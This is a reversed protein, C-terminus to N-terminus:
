AEPLELWLRLARDLQAIQPRSLHGIRKGIRSRKVAAIKDVMVESPKRLGTSASEGFAIRFESFGTLESSIPCIVVSDHVPMSYILNSWSRRARNATTAPRQAFLSTVENSRVSKM